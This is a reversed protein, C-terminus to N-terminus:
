GGLVEGSGSYKKPASPDITETICSTAPSAYKLDYEFDSEMRVRFYSFGVESTYSSGVTGTAYKLGVVKNHRLKDISLSSASASSSESDRHYSSQSETENERYVRGAMTEVLISPAKCAHAMDIFAESMSYTSEGIVTTGFDVIQKDVNLYVCQARCTHVTEAQVVGGLLMMSAVVMAKNM